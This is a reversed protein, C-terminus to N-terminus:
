KSESRSGSEAPTELGLRGLIKRLKDFCRARTPGISGVPMELEEGIQQYDPESAASFMRRLLQECRGGLERLGQQVLHAQEWRSAEDPAPESLDAIAEEVAAASEGKKGIRWCERHTTTILWASLRTNDQLTDLKRFLITFVVQTVDDADAESMGYRRPISYVLRGYTDVLTDWAASQGALCAQILDPDSRHMASITPSRSTCVHM